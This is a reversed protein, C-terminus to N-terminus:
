LSLSSAAGVGAGRVIIRVLALGTFAPILLYSGWRVIPYQPLLDGPDSRGAVLWVYLLLITMVWGPRVLLAVLLSEVDSRFGLFSFLHSAKMRECLSEVAPRDPGDGVVVFEIDSRGMDVLAHAVPPLHDAGKDRRSVRGVFGIRHRSRQRLMGATPTFRRLDIGLYLVEIKSEPLRYARLVADRCAFSNALVRDCFWLDLRAVLRRWGGLGAAHRMAAGHETHLVPRRCVLKVLPRSFPPVIHDHIIM